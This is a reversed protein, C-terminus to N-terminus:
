INFTIVQASSRNLFALRPKIKNISFSTNIDILNKLISFSIKKILLSSSFNFLALLQIIKKKVIKMLLNM